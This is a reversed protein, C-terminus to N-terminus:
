CKLVRRMYPFVFCLMCLCWVCINLSNTGETNCRNFLCMYVIFSYMSTGKYWILSSEKKEWFSLFLIYGLTNYVYEPGHGETKM